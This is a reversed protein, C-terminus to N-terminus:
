DLIDSLVWASVVVDVFILLCIPQQHLQHQHPNSSTTWGCATRLQIIRCIVAVKVSM